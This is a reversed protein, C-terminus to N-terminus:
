QIQDEAERYSMCRGAGLVMAGNLVRLHPPSGAANKLKMSRIQQARDELETWDITRELVAL